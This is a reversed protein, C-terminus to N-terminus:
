QKPNSHAKLRLRDSGTLLPAPSGELLMMVRSNAFYEFDFGTEDGAQKGPLPMLRATLPKDLRLSLSAIDALLGQLSEPSVNGPLPITDLGTGCVSSYLMLDNITLVGEAARRALVADELVPLMVGNFGTHKFNATQLVDTLFAVAALCGASGIPAAGLQEIASGISRSEEPFPALSFDIGQFGTPSQELVPHIATEIRRSEAEISQTLRSRVNDLSIAGAAASIALDASETAIAICPRGGGHYAAPFFPSWASVNALAALRLNAFGNEELRSVEGILDAMARLRSLSIGQDHSAIEVAAFVSRTHQLLSGLLDVYADSHTLRVPGASVYDIGEANATEELSCAYAITHEVTGAGIADPLPQAALRTTEVDYGADVLAQRCRTLVGAILTISSRDVPYELEAFATISRIKM